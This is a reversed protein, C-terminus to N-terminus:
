GIQQARKIVLYLTFMVCINIPM